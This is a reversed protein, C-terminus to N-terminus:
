QPRGWAEHGLSLLVKKRKRESETSVCHSTAFNSRLKAVECEKAKLGQM